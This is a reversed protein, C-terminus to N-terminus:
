NSHKLVAHFFFRQFTYVTHRRRAPSSPLSLQTLTDLSSQPSVPPSSRILGAETCRYNTWSFFRLTILSTFFCFNYFFIPIFFSSSLFLSYLDIDAFIYSWHHHAMLSSAAHAKHHCLGHSEDAPPNNKGIPYLSLTTSDRSGRSLTQCLVACTM